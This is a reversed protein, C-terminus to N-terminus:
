TFVKLQEASLTSPLVFAAHDLGTFGTIQGAIAAEVLDLTANIEAAQAADLTERADDLFVLLWSGPRPEGVLATGVEQVRGRGQVTARGPRTALVRMPVGICM